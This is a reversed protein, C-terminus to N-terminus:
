FYLRYDLMTYVSHLVSTEDHGSLYITKDKGDLPQNVSFSYPKMGADTKFVINWGKALPVDSRSLEFDDGLIETIEEVAYETVNNGGQFIINIQEKKRDCGTIIMILLSLFTLWYYVLPKGITMKYKEKRIEM